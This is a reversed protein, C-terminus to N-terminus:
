PGTFLNLPANRFDKPAYVTFPLFVPPHSGPPDDPLKRFGSDLLVPGSSAGYNDVLVGGELDVTGQDLVSLQWGERRIEFNYTVEYYQLDNEFFNRGTIAQCKVTGTALTIGPVEGNPQFLLPATNVADQYAIAVAYPFSTENRTVSFTLRTADMMPPPDFPQGASNVVPEDVVENDLAAATQTAPRQYKQSNWEVKWPRLTPDPLLDPLLSSYEVTVKWVEWCEPEQKVKVDVVRTAGLGPFSYVDGVQPLPDGTSPDVASLIDEPPILPDDTFVVFTRTLTRDFDKNLGGSRDESTEYFGLIAM